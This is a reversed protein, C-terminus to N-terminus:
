GLLVLDAIFLPPHKDVDIGLAGCLVADFATAKEVDYNTDNLYIGILHERLRQKQSVQRAM